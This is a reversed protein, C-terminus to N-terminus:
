LKPAFKSKHPHIVVVALIPQKDLVVILKGIGIPLDLGNEFGFWLWFLFTSRPTFSEHM